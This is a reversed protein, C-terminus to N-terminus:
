VLSHLSWSNQKSKAYIKKLKNLLILLPQISTILVPYMDALLNILIRNQIDVVPYNMHKSVIIPIDYRKFLNTAHKVLYRLM